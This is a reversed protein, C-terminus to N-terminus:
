GALGTTPDAPHRVEFDNYGQYSFTITANGGKGGANAGGYNVSELMNKTGLELKTGELSAFYIHNQNLNNGASPTYNTQALGGNEVAVVLDGNKATIEFDSKTQVPFNVFRFYPGKQGLELLQDRGLNVSFKASTFATKFGTGTGDPDNTGSSSIGPIELPFRSTAMDVHQRRAVGQSYAPSENGTFTPTFTFSSTLWTKNNGVATVSEKSPGDTMFDFSWASLYVGSCTMQSVPAGSASQNTDTYLSLGVQARQNSRGVLSGDPAGQTLLHGLLPNGDLCKEMTIEVDPIDEINQYLSLQGIEFAAQLNFKTNVGVSQLGQVRTFSTTAFPAIGVAQVAYFIRRNSM